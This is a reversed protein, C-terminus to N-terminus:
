ATLVAHLPDPRSDERKDPWQEWRRGDLDMGMETRHAASQKFFFAPGGETTCRDRLDRVWAHNMPRYGPGSEGGVIVWALGTLDLSPLPGLFPEASIFRIAVPIERLFDARWVYDDREISTGLWIHVPVEDLGNRDLWGLVYDRMREPRKTLVQYQHKDVERMVAFVKDIYADPFDDHFVDSMSNVFVRGAPFKYPDRLKNPKLVTDFGVPFAPSGRFKEAITEAYCHKCGPSIKTCGSMPNWTHDTWRIKTGEM